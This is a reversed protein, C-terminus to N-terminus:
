VENCLRGFLASTFPALEPPKLVVTCGAALAPAVTAGITAAPPNWTLLIAVVGVPEQQTYDFAGEVPLTAGSLKDTWGAYYDFWDASAPGITAAVPAPIGSEATTLAAFEAAHERYARALDQLIVRRRTPSTQRWSALAGRAAAVAEDVDDTGAIAGHGLVSGTAPNIHEFSGASTTPVERGGILLGASLPQQGLTLTM